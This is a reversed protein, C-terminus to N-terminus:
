KNGGRKRYILDYTIQIGFNTPGFWMRSHDRKKFDRVRGTYDYYYKGDYKGTIPNGYIYPDYKTYLMGVSVMAELRLHGSRILKVTYGASLGAGFGEGEWGKDKNFGIGYAFGHAYAALYAGRYPLGRKFYRRLEFQLDRIQFFKYQNWLRHNTFTFGLNYTLHGHLPFYELQVNMGPAWGFNPMYFFDHVLNTRIAILPLRPRKPEKIITDPVVAPLTDVPVFKVTDIVVPPEPLPAPVIPVVTDIKVEQQMKEVPLGFWLMVRAQRLSPFYQKKLRQWLAGRDLNMLVKKCAEEDGWSSTWAKKVRAADRDGAKEMLWVLYPYDECIFERDVKLSDASFGLETCIFDLLRNTRERGLRRNNEYPGEPSAAGRVDIKRLVLGQERLLPVVRNRFISIFPESPRLNTRNVDFVIGRASVNFLSDSVHPIEATPSASTYIFPLDPLAAYGGEEQGRAPLLVAFILGIAVILQKM